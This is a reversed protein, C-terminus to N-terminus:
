LNQQEVVCDKSTRDGPLGSHIEHSPRGARLRDGRGVDVIETTACKYWGNRPTRDRLSGSSAYSVTVRLDNMSPSYHQIHTRRATTSQIDTVSAVWGHWPPETHTTLSLLLSLRAIFVFRDAGDPWYRRGEWFCPSRM